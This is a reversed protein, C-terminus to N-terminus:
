CIYTLLSHLIIIVMFRVVWLYNTLMKTWKRVTSLEYIKNMSM